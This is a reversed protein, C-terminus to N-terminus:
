PELMNPRYIDVASPGKGNATEAPKESPPAPTQKRSPVPRSPEQTQAFSTSHISTAFILALFFISVGAFMLSFRKM